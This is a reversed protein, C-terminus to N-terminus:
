LKQIYLEIIYPQMNKDTGSVGETTTNVNSNVAYSGSGSINGGAVIGFTNTHAHAVLVADKSGGTSSLVSYGTGYGVVVRGAFNDTGNNGNCIAWGARLNKGLGDVEFNANLYTLDCKVIKIDGSQSSNLQIFDLLALEVQRHKTATIKTGSALNSNILDQLDTYASM